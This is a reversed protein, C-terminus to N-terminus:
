FRNKEQTIKIFAQFPVTLYTYLKDEIELTRKIEPSMNNQNINSLLIVESKHRKAPRNLSINGLCAMFELFLATVNKCKLM